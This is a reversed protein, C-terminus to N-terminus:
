ADPPVGLLEMLRGFDAASIRGEITEGGRSSFTPCITRRVRAAIARVEERWTDGSSTPEVPWKMLSHKFYEGIRAAVACNERDIGYTTCHEGGHEGVKRAIIVVQSYGYKEAVAKAASIPIPKMSTM